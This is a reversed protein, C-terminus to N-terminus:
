RHKNYINSTKRCLAGRKKRRWRQTWYCRTCIAGQFGPPSYWPVAHRLIKGRTPIHPKRYGGKSTLIIDKMAGGSKNTHRRWERRDEELNEILATVSESADLLSTVTSHPWVYGNGCDSIMPPAYTQLNRRWIGLVLGRMGCRSVKNKTAITAYGVLYKAGASKKRINVKSRAGGRDGQPRHCFLNCM